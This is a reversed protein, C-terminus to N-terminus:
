QETFLHGTFLHLDLDRLNRLRLHLGARTINNALAISFVLDHAILASPFLVYVLICNPFRLSAQVSGRAPASCERYDIDIHLQSQPTIRAWDTMLEKHYYRIYFSTFLVIHRYDDEPLVHSSLDYPEARRIINCYDRHQKWDRRQCKISCYYVASCAGCIKLSKKNRRTTAKCSNCRPRTLDKAVFMQLLCHESIYRINISPSNRFDSLVELVLRLFPLSMCRAVVNSVVIDLPTVETHQTEDRDGFGEDILRLLSRVGERRGRTGMLLIELCSQIGPKFGREFPASDFLLMASVILRMDEYRSVRYSDPLPTIILAHEILEVLKLVFGLKPQNMSPSSPIVNKLTSLACRTLLPLDLKSDVSACAINAISEILTVIPVGRLYDNSLHCQWADVALPLFVRVTQFRRSTAFLTIATMGCHQKSLFLDIFKTTIEFRRPISPVPHDELLTPYPSKLPPAHCSQILQPISAIIAPLHKTLRLKFLRFHIGNSAPSALNRNLITTVRTLIRVAAGVDGKNRSTNPSLHLGFPRHIPNAARAVLCHQRFHLLRRQNAVRTSTSNLRAMGNRPPHSVQPTPHTDSDSYGLLIFSLSLCLGEFALHAMAVGEILARIM